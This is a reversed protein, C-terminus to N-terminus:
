AFVAITKLKNLITTQDYFDLNLETFKLISCTLIIKLDIKIQVINTISNSIFLEVNVYKELYIYPKFKFCFIFCPGNQYDSVDKIGYRGCRSCLSFTPPLPQWCFYCKDLPLGNLIM